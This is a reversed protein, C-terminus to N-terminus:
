VYQNEHKIKGKLTYALNMFAFRMYQRTREEEKRNFPFHRNITMHVMSDVLYYFRERDMTKTLEYIQEAAQKREQLDPKVSNYLEKRAQTVLSCYRNRKKAFSKVYGSDKIIYDDCYTFLGDIDIGFLESVTYSTLFLRTEEDSMRKTMEDFHSMSKTDLAFYRYVLKYVPDDGYRTIEPFFLQKNYNYIEGDKLLKNLFTDFCDDVEREKLYRFRIHQRYRNGPKADAYHVFFLGNAGKDALFRFVMKEVKKRKGKRYFIHYSSWETAAEQKHQELMLSLPQTNVNKTRQSSYIWDTVNNKQNELEPAEILTLQYYENRKQLSIDMLEYGYEHGTAVPLSKDGHLLYVYPNENFHYKEVLNKLQEIRKKKELSAKLKIHIRGPSIILDRYQIRPVFELFSFKDAPFSGPYDFCYKSFEYLFLLAPHEQFNSYALLHTAVPYIVKNNFTLQLGRDTAIMGLKQIPLVVKDDILQANVSGICDIIYKAESKNSVGLDKYRNSVYNLEAFHEELPEQATTAQIGFRGQFSYRPFSFANPPIIWKKNYPVLKCDFSVPVKHLSDFAQISTKMEEIDEDSLSVETKSYPQYRNIKNLLILDIPNNGVKYETYLPMGIGYDDDIVKLLPVEYFYGFTEIFKLYYQQWNRQQNTNFLRMVQLQEEIDIPLKPEDIKEENHYLDIVLYSSSECFSKMEKLLQKYLAIGTGIQASEYETILLKIEKLKEFYDYPMGVIQSAHEFFSYCNRDISSSRLTSVVIGKKLLQKIVDLVLPKEKKEYCNLVNKLLSYQQINQLLNLLFSTKNIYVRSNNKIYTDMVIQNNENDILPSVTIGIDSDTTLSQEIKEVAEHEWELSSRVKKQKGVENKQELCIGANLGNPQTRGAMRLYYKVIAKETKEDLDKGSQALKIIKEYLSQSNILIQEQFIPDQILDGLFAKRNSSFIKESVENFALFAKRKLM